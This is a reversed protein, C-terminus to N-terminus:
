ISVFDYGILLYQKNKIPKRLKLYESGTMQLDQCLQLKPRFNTLFITITFALLVHDDKM